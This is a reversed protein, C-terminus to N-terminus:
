KLGQKFDRVVEYTEKLLHPYKVHWVSLLMAVETNGTCQPYSHFAGRMPTTSNRLEWKDVYYIRM